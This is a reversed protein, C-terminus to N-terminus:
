ADRDGKVTEADFEEKSRLSDFSPLYGKARYYQESVHAGHRGYLVYATDQSGSAGRVRYVGRAM